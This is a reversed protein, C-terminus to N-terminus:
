AEITVTCRCNITESPPASPDGPYMLEAGSPSVFPTDMGVVTQGDMESHTDRTRKDKIARWTRKITAPDIGAQEFAQRTAEDRAENLIRLSETRSITEARMAIMRDRYRDVMREIKAPSLPEGDEISREVAGDFRRDRLARELVDKNGAELATQYGRVIDIQYPTLGITQTLERAMAQPSAGRGFGRSLVTRVTSAQEQTVGQILDMRNLNVIEMARPHALDFGLSVRANGVARAALRGQEKQGADVFVQSVAGRLPVTHSALFDKLDRSRGQELLNRVTRLSGESRADQIYAMYARQLKKEANQLMREVAERDDGAAKLIMTV